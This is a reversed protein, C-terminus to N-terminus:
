LIAGLLGQGLGGALGGLTTQLLNTGFDNWPDEVYTPEWANYSATQGSTATGYANSWMDGAGQLAALRQQRSQLGYRNYMDTAAQFQSPAQQLGIGALQSFMGTQAGLMEQTSRAGIEGFTRAARNADQGGYGLQNGFMNELQRQANYMNYQQTNQLAQGLPNTAGITLGQLQPALTNTFFGFGATPDYERQKFAEFNKLMNAVDGLQEYAYQSQEGYLDYADQTLNEVNSSDGVENYGGEGM